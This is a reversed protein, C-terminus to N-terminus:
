ANNRGLLLPRDAGVIHDILWFRLFGGTLAALNVTGNSVLRSVHELQRELAQHHREHQLYRAVSVNHRILAEEEVFHMQLDHLLHLLMSEEEARTLANGRSLRYLTNISDALARHQGDVRDVGTSLGDDWAILAEGPSLRSHAGVIGAHAADQRGEHQCLVADLTDAVTGMFGPACDCESLYAVLRDMQEVMTDHQGAHESWGGYGIARLITEEHQFHGTVNGVFATFEPAMEAREAGAHCQDKLTRVQRVLADHSQDIFDNGSAPITAQKPTAIAGVREGTRSLSKGM